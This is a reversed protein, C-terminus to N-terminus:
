LEGNLENEVMNRRRREQEIANGIIQGAGLGVAGGAVGRTVAGEGLRRGRVGLTSGVLSTVFPTIGTTVPLSRGLFQVEPGHIGENTYKLAGALMSSKGDDTPNWDERKDFKFAKYKGFESPSVDPRVKKFEEYPLLNGTRGM